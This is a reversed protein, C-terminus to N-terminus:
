ESLSKAEAPSWILEIKVLPGGNTFAADQWAELDEDSPLKTTVNAFGPNDTDAYWYKAVVGDGAMHAVLKEDITM